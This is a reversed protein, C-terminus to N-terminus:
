RIGNPDNTHAGAILNGVAGELSFAVEYWGCAYGAVCSGAVKASTAYSTYSYSSAAVPDVPILGMYTQEPTVACLAKLGTGAPASPTNCIAKAAGAGLTTAAAVSPYGNYDGNYQELANQVQRMDALRKADRSKVRAQTLSVVAVTALLGIISIVVLLEILTFAKKM